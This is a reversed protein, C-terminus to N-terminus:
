KVMTCEEYRLKMIESNCGLVQRIEGRNAIDGGGLRGEFGGLDVIV